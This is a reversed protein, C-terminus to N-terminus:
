AEQLRLLSAVKQPGLVFAIRSLDPGHEEGTLAVRLPQFLARGKVGIRKGVERFIGGIPDPSWDPIAELSTAVASLLAV